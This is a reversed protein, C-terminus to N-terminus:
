GIHDCRIDRIVEVADFETNKFKDSIIGTLRDFSIPDYEPPKDMGISRALHMRFEQSEPSKVNSEDTNLQINLKNEM